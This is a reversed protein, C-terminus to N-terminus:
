ELLAALHQQREIKSLRALQAMQLYFSPLDSDAQYLVKQIAPVLEHYTAILALHANNLERSMWADYRTDNDWSKKLRSYDIKLQDFIRAKNARMVEPEQKTSYLKHLKERTQKLLTNFETRRKDAQMYVEYAIEDQQYIFWRRVGEQAVVTAFAENFNTDDKVYLQQHALEHFLVGIRLAEDRYLMTNILPDDFWGLTSYARAGAVYVDMGKRQLENAFEQAEKKDFYGRYSVCGAFLFCWHQPTVSFEETAIVNWIIYKRGLDVYKRYSDNNPLGLEESAFNRARQMQSLLEKLEVEVEPNALLDNIPQERSRIDSHGKVAQWYYETASCGAIVLCIAVLLSSFLWKM